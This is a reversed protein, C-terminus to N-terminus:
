QLYNKYLSGLSFTKNSIRNHYLYKPLDHKRNQNEHKQDLNEHRFSEIDVVLLVHGADDEANM